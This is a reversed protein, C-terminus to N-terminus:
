GARGVVLDGGEIRHVLGCTPLVAQLAQEPTMGAVSGRLATEGALRATEGDAFRLTWGGERAAQDLFARATRGDIEPLAAIGAVVWGWEAGSRPIQRRRAGGRGDAELETGSEVRHKKGGARLAVEGERVRIRVSESEAGVRVEYQTGTETVEGLPTRLRLPDRRDDAQRGPVGSDVYVAGSELALEAIGLIRLRSEADLRVSHGSALRVAVRGGAETGLEAGAPVEDGVALPRPRDWPLRGERSWASGVLAEVRVEGGTVSPQSREVRWGLVLALAAAAALGAAWLSRVRRRQRVERRWHDHIAARVRAAADPPAAPRRGALRILAAVEDAHDDRDDRDPSLEDESKM